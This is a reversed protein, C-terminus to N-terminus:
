NGSVSFLYGNLVYISPLLLLSGHRVQRLNLINKYMGSMRRIKRTHPTAHDFGRLYPTQFAEIM